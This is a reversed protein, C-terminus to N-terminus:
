SDGAKNGKMGSFRQLPKDEWYKEWLFLAPIAILHLVAAGVGFLFLGVAVVPFALVGILTVLSKKAKAM